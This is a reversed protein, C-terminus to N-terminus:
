DYRSMIRPQVLVYTAQDCLIYFLSSRGLFCHQSQQASSFCLLHCFRPFSPTSSSISEAMKSSSLCYELLCRLVISIANRQRASTARCKRGRLIDSKRTTLIRMDVVPVCEWWIYSGRCTIELLKINMSYHRTHMDGIHYQTNQSWLQM